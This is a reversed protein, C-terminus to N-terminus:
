YLRNLLLTGTLVFGWGLNWLNVPRRPPSPVVVPFASLFILVVGILILITSVVPARM